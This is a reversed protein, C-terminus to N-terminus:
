VLSQKFSCSSARLKIISVIPPFENQFEDYCSIDLFRVAESIDDSSPLVLETQLYCLVSTLRLDTLAADISIFARRRQLSIM